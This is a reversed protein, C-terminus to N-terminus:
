EAVVATHAGKVEDFDIGDEILVVAGGFQRDIQGGTQEAL